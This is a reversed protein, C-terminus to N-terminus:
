PAIDWKQELQTIIGATKLAAIAKQIRDILLTNDKKIVIGIGQVHDDPSLPVDLVYINPYKNKFKKAIAPEVFAADAKGYQINLLADDVKETFLPTIFPYKRLVADQASHPEVCVTTGHMDNISTINTPPTNWFVLQYSATPTGQYHVMAVKECREQTISLGWIIVDISDQNLATFLTTMSGLDQLVLPVQMQQALAQAVDIDFGEYDGQANISIFPAYGAAIGVVLRGTQPPTISSKNTVYLGGIVILATAVAIVYYKM